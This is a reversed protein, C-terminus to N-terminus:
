DNISYLKEVKTSGDRLVESAVMMFRIARYADNNNGFQVLEYSHIDKITKFGSNKIFEANKDINELVINYNSLQTQIKRFEMVTEDDISTPDSFKALLIEDKKDLSEKYEKLMSKLTVVAKDLKDHDIVIKSTIYNTLIEGLCRQMSFETAAQLECGEDDTILTMLETVIRNTKFSVPCVTDNTVNYIRTYTHESSLVQRLRDKLDLKANLDFNFLKASFLPYVRSDFDSVKFGYMVKNVQNPVSKITIDGYGSKILGSLIGLQLINSKCIDIKNYWERYKTFNDDIANVAPIFRTGIEPTMDTGFSFRRYQESQSVIDEKERERESIVEDIEKLLVDKLGNMVEDPISVLKVDVLNMMTILQPTHLPFGVCTDQKYAQHEKYYRDNEMCEDYIHQINAKIKVPDCELTIERVFSNNLENHSVVFSTESDLICSVIDHIRSPTSTVCGIESASLGLGNCRVLKHLYLCGNDDPLDQLVSLFKDFPSDSLKGGFLTEYIIERDKEIDLITLVVTCYKEDEKIPNKWVLQYLKMEAKDTIPYSADLLKKSKDGDTDGYASSGIAARIKFLKINRLEKTFVRTNEEVFLEKTLKEMNDMM